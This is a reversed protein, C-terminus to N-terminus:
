VRVGPRAAGNEDTFLLDIGNDDEVISLYVPAPHAANGTRTELLEALPQGAQRLREWSTFDLDECILAIGEDAAKLVSEYIYLAAEPRPHHFIRRESELAASLGKVAARAEDMAGLDLWGSILQIQNVYDHRMRRLLRVVEEVDM